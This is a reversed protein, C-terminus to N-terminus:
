VSEDNSTQLGILLTVNGAVDREEFRAVTNTDLTGLAVELVGGVNDTM